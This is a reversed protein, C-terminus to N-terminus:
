VASPVEECCCYTETECRSFGRTAWDLLLGATGESTFGAPAEETPTADDGPPVPPWGEVAEGSVAYEQCRMPSWPVLPLSATPWRSRLLVGRLEAPPLADCSDFPCLFKAIKDGEERAGALSPLRRVAIPVSRWTRGVSDLRCSECNTGPNAGCCVTGPVAVSCCLGSAAGGGLVCCCCGLWGCPDSVVTLLPRSGVSRMGAARNRGELIYPWTAGKADIGALVSCTPPELPEEWAVPPLWASRGFICACGAPGIAGCGYTKLPGGACCCCPRGVDIEAGGPPSVCCCYRRGPHRGGPLKGAVGVLHAWRRGLAIGVSDQGFTGLCDEIAVVQLQIMLCARAQAAASERRSKGRQLCSLQCQRPDMSGTWDQQEYFQPSEWPPPLVSIVALSKGHHFDQEPQDLRRREALGALAAMWDPAMRLWQGGFIDGALHFERTRGFRGDGLLPPWAVVVLGSQSVAEGGSLCLLHLQGLYELPQGLGILECGQPSPVSQDQFNLHWLLSQQLLQFWQKCRFALSCCWWWWRKEAKWKCVEQATQVMVVLQLSRGRAAAASAQTQAAEIGLLISMWGSAVIKKEEALFTAQLHPLQRCSSQLALNHLLCTTNCSLCRTSSNGMLRTTDFLVERQLCQQPKEGHPTPADRVWAALPPASLLQWRGREKSVEAYNEEREGHQAAVTTLRCSVGSSPHPPPAFIYTERTAFLRFMVRFMRQRTSYDPYMLIRRDLGQQVQVENSM